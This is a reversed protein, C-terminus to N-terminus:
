IIKSPLSDIPTGGGFLANKLLTAQSHGQDKLGHGQFTLLTLHIQCHSSRVLKMLNRTRGHMGSVRSLIVLAKDRQSM